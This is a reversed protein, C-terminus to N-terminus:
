VIEIFNKVIEMGYTTLISEPHFQVGYFKKDFNEFSMIVGSDSVSTVRANLVGELDVAWSHYLGVNIERPLSKYLISDKLIIREQVGHKIESQNHLTGGINEAIAQMGLCVGFVPVRGLFYKTIEELRGAENPLGPGPSLVVADYKKQGFEFEDNRVVHVEVNLSDLYHKLNFTFSDYNDILLIQKM